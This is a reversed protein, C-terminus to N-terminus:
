LFLIHHCLQLCLTYIRDHHSTCKFCKYKIAADQLLRQDVVTLANIVLLKRYHHSFHCFGEELAWMAGLILLTQTALVRGNEVYKTM